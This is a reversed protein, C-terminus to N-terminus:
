KPADVSLTGSATYGEGLLEAQVNAQYVTGGQGEAASGGFIYLTVSTVSHGDVDISLEPQQPYFMATVGPPLGTVSCQIPGLLGSLSVITVTSTVPGSAFPSSSAPVFLSIMRANLTLYFDPDSGSPPRPLDPGGPPLPRGPPPLPAIPGGPTGLNTIHGAEGGAGIPPSPVTQSPGPAGGGTTELPTGLFPATANPPVSIMAMQSAVPTSVPEVESSYASEGAATVATALFFFTSGTPANEGTLSPQTLAARWPKLGEGGPSTGRYLSYTLALPTVASVAKGQGHAGPERANSWALLIQRTGLTAVLGTPALPLTASPTASVAVSFSGTTSSPPQGPLHRLAASHALSLVSVVRYTYATGNILGGDTWVTSRIGTKYPAKQDSGSAPSRFITYSEAGPSPTWILSIQTNGRKIRLNQPAAPAGEPIASVPLSSASQGSRSLATVM